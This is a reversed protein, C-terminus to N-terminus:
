GPDRDGLRSDGDRAPRPRKRDARGMRDRSALERQAAGVCVGLSRERGGLPRESNRLAYVQASVFHRMLDPDVLTYGFGFDWQWAANALPSSVSEFFANATGSVSAARGPSSTPTVCTSSSRTVGDRRRRARPLTGASTGM